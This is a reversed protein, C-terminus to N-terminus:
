QLNINGDKIVKAWKAMERELFSGFEGAGRKVPEAGEKALAEKFEALDQVAAIEQSLKDVIPKAIGAPGVIGWWNDAEYGAVGAEAITPLEPFAASRKSSGVGLARLKGAKMHGSVQVLTFIAMQAHGGVVDVTAPGGGKYPVQVVDIGAMTLLQSSFMHQFTGIGAHALHLKGPNAKAHAILERV